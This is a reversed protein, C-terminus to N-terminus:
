QPSLKAVSPAGSLKSSHSSPSPSPEFRAAGQPGFSREESQEDQGM